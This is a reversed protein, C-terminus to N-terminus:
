KAVWAPHLRMKAARYADSAEQASPFGGLYVTKGNICIRAEYRGGRKRVGTVGTENDSRVSHMNQTNESPTVIRLNQIRNDDRVGNIHDIIGAPEEGYHLSWALRHSAWCRGLVRVRRYGQSDKWGAEKGVVVNQGTKKKRTLIGTEPDYGIASRLESLANPSLSSPPWPLRVLFEKM